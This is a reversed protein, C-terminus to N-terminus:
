CCIKNVVDSHSHLVLTMAEECLLLSMCGVGLTALSMPEELGRASREEDGAASLKLERVWVM